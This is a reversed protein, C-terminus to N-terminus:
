IVKGEVMKPSSNVWLRTTSVGTKTGNQFYIRRVLDVRVLKAETPHWLIQRLVKGEDHVSVVHVGSKRVELTVRHGDLWEQATAIAKGPATISYNDTPDSLMTNGLWGTSKRNWDYRYWHVREVDHAAALIYTRLVNSIQKEKSLLKTLLVPGVGYNVECVWTPIDPDPLFGRVQKLLKFADEPTGGDAMPYLNLALVDCPQAVALYDRLLKRQYTMRTAFSPSLVEAAPAFTNRVDLMIATLRAMNAMTDTWSTTINAENWVQYTGIRTGYRSMAATVLNRYAEQPPTMRDVKYFLPVYAITWVVSTNHAEAAAVYGDLKDWDYVGPSKEIDAWSTGSDWLRLSGYDLYDWARGSADQLGYFNRHM